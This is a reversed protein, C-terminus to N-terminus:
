RQEGKNQISWPCVGATKLVDAMPIARKFDFSNEALLYGDKILHFRELRVKLMQDVNWNIVPASGLWVYELRGTPKGFNEDKRDYTDCDVHLIVDEIDYNNLMGEKIVKMASERVFLYDQPTAGNARKDSLCVNRKAPMTVGTKIYDDVLAYDGAARLKIKRIEFMEMM